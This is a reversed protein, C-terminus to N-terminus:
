ESRKGKNILGSILYILGAVLIISPMGIAVFGQEEFYKFNNALWAAGVVTGLLGSIVKKNM